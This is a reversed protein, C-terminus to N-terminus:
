YIWPLLRHVRKEYDAYGSFKKRLWVEEHRAKADLFLTMVAAVGLASWSAHWLGWGIGLWILSAYLPHRVFGYVGTTVLPADPLPQPFITRGAGLGWVGALGFWAGICLCVGAIIKGSGSVAWDEKCFWGTALAALMLITQAIVWGGGREIFSTKPAMSKPSDERM